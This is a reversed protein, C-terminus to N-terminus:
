WDRSARVGSARLQNGLTAGAGLNCPACNVVDGDTGGLVVPTTHALHMRAPDTMVRDCNDSRYPQGNVWDGPCATGIAEPIM